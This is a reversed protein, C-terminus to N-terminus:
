PGVTSRYGEEGFRSGAGAIGAAREGWIAVGGLWSNLIRGAQAAALGSLGRPRYPIGGSSPGAPRVGDIANAAEPSPM